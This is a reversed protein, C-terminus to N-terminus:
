RRKVENRMLRDLHTLWAHRRALYKRHRRRADRVAGLALVMPVFAGWLRWGISTDSDTANGIALIALAIPLVWDSWHYGRPKM